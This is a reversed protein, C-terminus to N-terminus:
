IFLSSSSFSPISTSSYAPMRFGCSPELALSMGSREVELNLTQSSPKREALGDSSRQTEPNPSRSSFTM